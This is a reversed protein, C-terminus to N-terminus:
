HCTHLYGTPPADSQVPVVRATEYAQSIVLWCILLLFYCRSSFLIGPPFLTKYGQLVAINICGQPRHSAYTDPVFCNMYLTQWQAPHERSYFPGRMEEFTELQDRKQGLVEKYNFVQM